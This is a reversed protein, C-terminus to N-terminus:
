RRTEHRHGRLEVAVARVTRRHPASFGSPRSVRRRLVHSPLHARRRAAHSITQAQATEFGCLTHEPRDLVTVGDRGDRLSDLYRREHEDGKRALLQTQPDDHEPADKQGLAVLRDLQTLYECELYNNLDSAAYVFRGDVLQM